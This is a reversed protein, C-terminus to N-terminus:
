VGDLEDENPLDLDPDASGKSPTLGIGEAMYDPLETYSIKKATYRPYSRGTSSIFADVEMEVEVAYGEHNKWDQVAQEGGERPFRIEVKADPILGDRDALILGLQPVEFDGNKGSRTEVGAVYGTFLASAGQKGSYDLAVGRNQLTIFTGGDNTRRGQPAAVVRINTGVPMEGLIGNLVQADAGIAETDYFKEGTGIRLKAVPFDSNKGVLGYEFSEVTGLIVIQNLNM